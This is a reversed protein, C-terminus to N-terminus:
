VIRWGNRYIMQVGGNNQALIFGGADNDVTGSVTIPNSACNGSEDKIIILRGLATTAPLTITVPATVNIGIYEDTYLVTYTNSTVEVTNVTKGGAGDATDVWQGTGNEELWINLSGELTNYWLDGDSPNSPAVDDTIVSVGTGGSVTSFDFKNKSSNYRLYKNNGITSQDVDDLFRLKTEGGGPGTMSVKSLWQELFKIKKQIAGIDADVLLPDPQQFSDKKSSASIAESVLDTITPEPTNTDAISEANPESLSISIEETEKKDLDDEEGLLKELDDLSPPLPYNHKVSILDAEQKLQILAKSLDEFVSSRINQRIKNEIQQHKEVDEILEPEVEQGFSKALNVLLQKEKISKISM